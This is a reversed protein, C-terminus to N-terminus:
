SSKENEFSVTVTPVGKEDVELTWKAKKGKEVGLFKGIASPITTRLSGKNEIIKTSYIM